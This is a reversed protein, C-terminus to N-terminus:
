EHGEKGVKTARREIARKIGAIDVRTFLRKNAIRLTPEPVVGTTLLYAIQYPQCGVERAVESILFLHKNM